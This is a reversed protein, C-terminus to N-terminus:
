DNQYCLGRLYPTIYLDWLIGSGREFFVVEKKYMVRGHIDLYNLIMKPRTSKLKLKYQNNVLLKECPEVIEKKSVVKYITDNRKLYVINNFRYSITDINTVIYNRLSDNTFNVKQPTELEKFNSNERSSVCSFVTLIGFLLIYKKM